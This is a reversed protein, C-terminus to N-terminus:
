EDKIKKKKKLIDKNYNILLIFIQTPNKKEISMNNQEEKNGNTLTHASFPGDSGRTLNQNLLNMKMKLYLILQTFVFMNLFLFM